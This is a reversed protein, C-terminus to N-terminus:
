RSQDISRGLGFGGMESNLSWRRMAWSSQRFAQVRISCLTVRQLLGFRMSHNPVTTCWTRCIEPDMGDCCDPKPHKKERLVGPRRLIQSGGTALQQFEASYPKTDNTNSYTRPQQDNTWLKFPPKDHQLRSDNSLVRSQKTILRTRESLTAIKKSASLFTNTRLSVSWYYNPLLKRLGRGEGEVKKQFFQNM